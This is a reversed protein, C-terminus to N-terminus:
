QGEEGSCAARRSSDPPVPVGLTPGRAPVAVAYRDRLDRADLAGAARRVGAPDTGTVMWASSDDGDAVAAVLGAGARYGCRPAARSDALVLEFRGRGGPKFTAFVGSTGPGELSAAPDRRIAAWPGVLMQLSRSPTGPHSGLREIGADAGAEALRDAVQECTAHTTACEVRVPLRRDPDTSAQAFPEPWSGVVAPVRMASTWDRYDWWIRDGGHVRVDAAGVPSERGNVYFFWDYRRGGSETGALGDISQVFGGGYRTTIDARRDLLRLVTDSSAPDHDEADVLAKSGYDRTVVLTATGSDSPGPGLGCGAAAAACAFAAAAALSRGLTM